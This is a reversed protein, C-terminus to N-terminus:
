GYFRSIELLQSFFDHAILLVVLSAGAVPGWRQGAGRAALALGAGFLALTPLLYRTQAYEGIVKPFGSYDAAGVLLMLGAVIAGYVILEALRRRVCARGMLLARGLLLSVIALPLLAFSYVWTPFVTDLWGYLGVYGQIWFDRTTDIGVFYDHMGPMRPFYLQWIYSSEGLISKDGVASSVQSPLQNFAFQGVLTSMSVYLGGAVGLTLALSRYATRRSQRGARVTLLVVGLATGPILGVFNLKTMLGTAIVLGIAIALKPTLGRRFGRALCYFLSASVAYLLADPNVAGSMLGLLPSFAVGLGGVTWAWPARPLAERLFLVVFFAVVGAFLTSFLRMLALRDLVTGGRGAYYPITELAYYLPPESAAVGADPGIRSLPLALDRELRDQQAQTSITHNQPSYHVQQQELDRMAIEQAPGFNGGDSPLRGSEALYQAYAFHSPEDTVQFPPTILSWCAANLCAILACSWAALPIRRIAVTARRYANM